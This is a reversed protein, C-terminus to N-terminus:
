LVGELIGPPLPVALLRSFAAYIALSAVLALPVGFRLKVGYAAFLVILILVSCPLFGLSESAALYFIVAAITILFGLLTRRRRLDPSASFWVKPGSVALSRVLLIASSTGLCIGVATPFLAPGVVQGPSPPFAQAGVVVAIALALFTAALISDHLKM